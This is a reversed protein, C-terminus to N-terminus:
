QARNLYTGHEDDLYRLILRGNENIIKCHEHAVFTDCIRIDAEDSTGILWPFSVSTYDTEASRHDALFQQKESLRSGNRDRRLM